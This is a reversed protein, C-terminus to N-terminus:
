EISQLVKRLIERGSADFVYWRYEQAYTISKEKLILLIVGRKKSLYAHITQEWASKISNPDDVRREDILGYEKLAHFHFQRICWDKLRATLGQMPPEVLRNYYEAENIFTTEDEKLIEELRQCAYASIPFYVVDGGGSQWAFLLQKGSIALTLYVTYRVWGNDAWLYSIYKYTGLDQSIEGIQANWVDEGLKSHFLTSELSSRVENPNNSRSTRLVHWVGRGLYVFFVLFIVAIVGGIIISLIIPLFM